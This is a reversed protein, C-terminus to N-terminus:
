KKNPIYKSRGHGNVNGFYARGLFRGESSFSYCIYVSRRNKPETRYVGHHTGYSHFGGSPYICGVEATCEGYEKTYREGMTWQIDMATSLDSATVEKVPQGHVAIKVAYKLM